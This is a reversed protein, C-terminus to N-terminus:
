VVQERTKLFRIKPWDEQAVKLRYANAALFVPLGHVDDAVAAEQSDLFRKLERDDDAELWRATFLTTPQFAIPLDYETRIRDALVDFQLSGTGENGTYFGTADVAISKVASTTPVISNNVWVNAGAGSDSVSAIGHSAVGNVREFDGGLVVEGGGPKVNLAQVSPSNVYTPPNTGATANSETAPAWPLLAGVNGQGVAGAAAAHLRATIVGGTNVSTFDGGYYVTSATAAIARVMGTPAPNFGSVVTCSAIDLAALSGRNSGGFTSFFGGVYLTKGDPSVTLSRVSATSPDGALLAAPQCTSDPEGTAADLVVFNSRAIEGPDGTGAVVGPPRVNSFRGGVFVKGQASAVAWAIGDTQYTSQATATFSVPAQLAEATANGIVPVAAVVLAGSVLVGLARARM